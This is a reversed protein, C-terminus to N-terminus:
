KVVQGMANYMKGDVIIYLQGNVICKNVNANVNANELATATPAVFSVNVSKLYLAKQTNTYRIELAGQLENTNSFTYETATTTLTITEGVQMDGIYLALKGTGSSAISANVKIEDILCDSTEETTLSVQTAPNNKSGFQAGKSSDYGFYLDYDSTMEITWSWDSLTNSGSALSKSASWSYASCEGSPEPNEPEEPNEPNPNESTEGGMYKCTIIGNSETIETLPRSSISSWSATTGQRFPDTSKGISKTSGTASVVTYRCNGSTNNPENNEWASQSYNLKWILMGHGPLDADWKSTTQRNEILYCVGSTKYDQYNGSSNIQYVNYEATGNAYLTLNAPTNGPNVPTIWGMFAKEWPSMSPPTMGENNYSGEDMIDWKGPTAENDYNTGYETDYLDPLGLVHGFEHTPTGIGSRTTGSTGDLEQSYAFSGIKVGDFTYKSASASTSLSTYGGAVASAMDWSAPWMTNAAAGQAEGYGAYIIYVFDMEGDGDQDYDALNVGSIQSAISCAHLVMDGLKIDGGEGDSGNSGYYSMTKPLTIPGVVDFHPRYAGLSQDSYYQAASGTAGNYTYNVANMMSDMQAQTNASQFSKDSFNALILLGKSAMLPTVGFQKHAGNQAARQLAKDRLGVKPMRSNAIRSHNIMQEYRATDGQELLSKLVRPDAPVALIYACLAVHMICLTLLRKM